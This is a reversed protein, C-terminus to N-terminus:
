EISACETLSRDKEEIIKWESWDVRQSILGVIIYIAYIVGLALVIDYNGLIRNPTYIEYVMFAAFLICAVILRAKASSISYLILFGISVEAVQMLFMFSLYGLRYPLGSSFEFILLIAVSVACLFLIWLTAIRDKGRNYDNYKSVLDEEEEQAIRRREEEEEQVIRRYDWPRIENGGDQWVGVANFFARQELDQLGIGDDGDNRRWYAWGARVMDQSLSEDPSNRYVDGVIFGDERIDM